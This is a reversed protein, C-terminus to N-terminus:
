TSTCRTSRHTRGGFPGDRGSAVLEYQKFLFCRKQAICKFAYTFADRLDVPGDPIDVDPLQDADGFEFAATDARTRPCEVGVRPPSPFSPM